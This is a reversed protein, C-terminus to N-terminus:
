ILSRFILKTRSRMNFEVKKKTLLHGLVFSKGLDFINIIKELNFGMSHVLLYKISVPARM